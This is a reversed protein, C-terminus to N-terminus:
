FRDRVAIDKIRSLCGSCVLYLPFLTVPSTLLPPSLLLYISLPLSEQKSAESFPPSALHPRPFDPISPSPYLILSTLTPSLFLPLLAGHYPRPRPIPGPVPHPSYVTPHPSAQQHIRRLSTPINPNTLPKFSPFPLTLILSDIHENRARMSTRRRSPNLTSIKTIQTRVLM